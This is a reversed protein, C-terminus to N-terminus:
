GPFVLDILHRAITAGAEGNGYCQRARDPWTPDRLRLSEVATKIRDTNAGVVANAGAAVTEVWETEDRLTICPVGLLFSEKQIGGSDTLVARAGSILDLCNRYPVPSIAHVNPLDV